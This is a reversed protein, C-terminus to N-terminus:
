NDTNSDIKQLIARVATSIKSTDAAKIGKKWQAIIVDISGMLGRLAAQHATLNDGAQWLAQKTSKLLDIASNFDGQQKKADAETMKPLSARVSDVALKGKDEQPPKAPTNNDKGLKKVDAQLALILENQQTLQQQLTKIVTQSKGINEYLAPLTKDVVVVLYATLIATAVLIAGYWVKMM